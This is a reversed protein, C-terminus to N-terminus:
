DESWKTRMKPVPQGDVLIDDVRENYFCLYGKIRPCEPIPEPYTWVIDDYSRGGIRASYYSATGKYPCQTHSDSPTLLDMRVDDPPIYYRTPLGTEFLFRAQTTEAVTEGGLVVRVPRSSNVVDVRSYPDRAHVFVEEDEEYWHDMPDWYFAVHGKIAAVQEIPTEYSWAANEASKDGVRVTWYSADGKYPCHTRHESPALLDTRVDTRPFYYVPLHGTEHLLLMDTSDAVTEGAFAVRVRRPSPEVIVRHGPALPDAILPM